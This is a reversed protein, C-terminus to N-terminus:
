GGGGKGYIRGVGVPILKWVPGTKGKQERPKKPPSLYKQKNIAKCFKRIVNGHIYTNYSLQNM